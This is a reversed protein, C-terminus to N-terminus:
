DEADTKIKGLVTEIMATSTADSPVAIHVVQWVREDSTKASKRGNAFRLTYVIYQKDEVAEPYGPYVTEGDAYVDTFGKGAACKSALDTIYKKDGIAPEAATTTVATGFLNDGAKLTWGEGINVGEITIKASAVTVNVELEGTSSMAKFYNGLKEAVIAASDGEVATHTATWTNREHPVTGNKVLILTYIKGATVTPITINASFKAGASPTAKVVSVTDYDVEPIIFPLRTAGRGLVLAFDKTPAASLWADPNDLEYVGISGNAMSSLDKPTAAGGKYAATSNVILLQKM